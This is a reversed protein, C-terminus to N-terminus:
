QLLAVAREHNWRRAIEAPSEAAINRINRDAGLAILQSIAPASGNKAAYHLVTNGSNDRAAIARGSFVAEIAEPGKAIAIDAPTKNDVAAAFVDSGSDALIKAVSYSGNDLALRLPTRGEKDVSSVRCGRKIMTQVMFPLARQRVAIHLPSLGDDDAAYVRDKTLLTSVMVPSIALANIFPTLGQANRAHISAGCNLLRTIIETQQTIVAIHLPTDGNNNRAIPDAGHEALREVAGPFGSMVAEMMATNGLNDRIETNANYSLLRGEMGSLGFRVADHLPTKGSLNQSNVNLGARVLLPAANQANWRVANHLCTNGLSDRTNVLAGQRILSEITGPSDARAAWFLPTEGTANAAEVRAGRAIMLPVYEALKWQAAYHLASNGLGDKAELTKKNLMWERIFGPSYFSLYLPSQSQSNPAFIDAGRAILLGGSVEDNNMVAIHLATNGEKNRASVAARNDLIFTTIVPDARNRVAVHLPTNGMSDSTLVTEPTILESLVPRKERIAKEVPTLGSTDEAFIDSKYALLPPVLRGQDEEIAVYLPTKGEINRNSVDSGGALLTEILETDRHLTIAVQLPIEGHEDRLNPNAGKSLLLQVARLHQAPPTGLHLPTNGKADQMNVDAGAAILKEMAEIKGNRAAEHLPAAGSSNKINCDAGKAILFDIFGTYGERAAYHYVTYGDNLRINYNSSRVAPAFYTYFPHQSYVGALVLKEATFAHVASDTRDLALDLATKGDNDKENLESGRTTILDILEHSGTIAALHLIARGEAGTSNINKPVLIASLFEKSDLSRLAITQDSGSHLPQHIDAGASAIISATASDLKEASIALPTRGMDDKANVDAGLTILFAALEPDELEAARHLPTRGQDDRETVSTKGKFMQRAEEIKGQDLLEWVTEKQTEKPVTECGSVLLIVAICYAFFQYKM